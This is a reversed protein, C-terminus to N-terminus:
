PGNAWFGFGLGLLPSVACGSRRVRRGLTAHRCQAGLQQARTGGRGKERRRQIESVREGRERAIRTSFDLRTQCASNEICKEEKRKKKEGWIFSHLTKRTTRPLHLCPRVSLDGNPSLFFADFLKCRHWTVCLFAPLPHKCKHSM